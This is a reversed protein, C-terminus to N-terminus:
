SESFGGGAIHLDNYDNLTSDYPISVYYEENMDVKRRDKGLGM